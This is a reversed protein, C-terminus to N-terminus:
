LNVFESPRHCGRLPDRLLLSGGPEAHASKYSELRGPLVAGDDWMRWHGLPLGGVLQGGVTRGVQTYSSLNGLFFNAMANGTSNPGSNSFGLIGETHGGGFAVTNDIRALRLYGGLKLTHKGQM